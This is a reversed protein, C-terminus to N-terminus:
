PEEQLVAAAERRARAIAADVIWRGVPKGEPVAAEIEEREAKTMCLGQRETLRAGYKVPQGPGRRPPTPDTM